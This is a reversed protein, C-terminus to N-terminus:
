SPLNQMTVRNLDLLHELRILNTRMTMSMTQVYNVCRNHGRRDSPTGRLSSQNEALVMFMYVFRPPMLSMAFPTHMRTSTRRQKSAWPKTMYGSPDENTVYM